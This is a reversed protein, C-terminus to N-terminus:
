VGRERLPIAIIGSLVMSLAPILMIVEMGYAAAIIGLVLATISLGTYLAVYSISSALGTNNPYRRSLIGVIRPVVMGNFVGYLFVSLTFIYFNHSLTGVLLSAGSLVSGVVTLKKSDMTKFPRCLGTVLRCITSGLWYFALALAWGMSSADPFVESSYKVAWTVVGGESIGFFLLSFSALWVAKDRFFQKAFSGNATKEAKVYVRAITKKECLYAAIQFVAVAATVLAMGKYIGRWNSTGALATIIPIFTAGLGCLAHLLSLSVNTDNPYLDTLVANNLTDIMGIAAGFILYSAMFLTFPPFGGILFLMAASVIFAAMNLLPKKMRDAIIFLLGIAAIGGLYQFFSMLGGSDLDIGYDTMLESLVSGTLNMCMCFICAGIYVSITYKRTTNRKNDM